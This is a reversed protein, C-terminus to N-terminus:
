ICDHRTSIRPPRSRMSRNRSSGSEILGGKMDPEVSFYVLDTVSKGVSSDLNDIRYDPLYGVVRFPTEAASAGLTPFVLLLSILWRRDNRM